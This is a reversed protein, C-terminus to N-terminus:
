EGGKKPEQYKAISKFVSKLENMKEKKEKPSMSDLQKKAIHRRWEGRIRHQEPTFRKLLESDSESRIEIIAGLPTDSMLGGLLKYYESVSIEEISM